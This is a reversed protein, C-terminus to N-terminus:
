PALGLLTLDSSGNDNTGALLQFAIWRPTAPNSAAPAKATDNNVNTGDGPNANALTGIADPPVSATVKTISRVSGDCFAFNVVGPHMSSFMFYQSPTQCDWYSPMTGTGMWTLQYTPLANDPGGLSEGFLLTNSTGDPIDLLGVRSDQYFPGNSYKANGPNSPDGNFYYMGSNGVYSTRGLPSNPLGDSILFYQYGSNNTITTTTATIAYTPTSPYAANYYSWFVPNNWATANSFAGYYSLQGTAFDKWDGTLISGANGAPDVGAFPGNMGSSPNSGAINTAAAIGFSSGSLAGNAPNVAIQAAPAYWSFFGNNVSLAVSVKQANWNITTGGPTSWNLSTWTTWSYNFPLYYTFQDATTFTSQLGGASVIINVPGAAAAPSVATISGNPNITFSTAPNNGFSVATATAFNSGTITVTTGGNIPGSNPSITGVSAGAYTFNPYSGTSSGVTVTVPGTGATGPATLATIQTDSVVIALSASNVGVFAVSSLANTNLGTFNQGTITVWTGGGIDVTSPSVSSITPGAYTFLDAASTSSTGGGIGGVAPTTLTIDVATGAVLALPSTATVQNESVVTFSAAPVTGFMVSNVGLFHTGSITVSTGGVAPGNNPSVVAVNPTTYYYVFANALTATGSSCTVSISIPTGVTAGAQAATPASLTIQSSSVFTVGTAAFNAPGWNVALNTATFGAGNITITYNYAGAGGSAIPATGAIQQASVVSTIGYYTFANTATGTGGGAAPSGAAPTTMSVNVTGVANAPAIATVSNESVSTPTVSVTGFIVANVGLLHNGTITVTTGAQGVSPSVALNIPPAYYYYFNTTTATTGSCTVSIPIPVGVMSSMATGNPFAAAATVNTCTIQNASVWTVNTAFAVPNATGWSVTLGSNTFGSGNITIGANFTGVGITNTASTAPQSSVVSTIVPLYTFTAPASTGSPGIVTINAVGASTTSPIAVNTISTDTTPATFTTAVGNVQVGTAGTFNVGTLAVTTGTVPGSSPSVTTIIPGASTITTLTVTANTALATSGARDSGTAATAPLSAPTSPATGSYVATDSIPTLGTLTTGPTLVISGYWSPSGTGMNNYGAGTTGNPVGINIPTNLPPFSTLSGSIPTYTFKAGSGTGITGATLGPLSTSGAPPNVVNFTANAPVAVGFTTGPAIVYSGPYVIAAGTISGANVSTVILQATGQPFNFTNPATPTSGPNAGPYGSMGGPPVTGGAVNLLNGVAYGSGGNAVTIGGIMTNLVVGQVTAGNTMRVAAGWGNGAITGTTNAANGRVSAGYGNNAIAVATAAANGRIEGGYGGTTPNSYYNASSSLQYFFTGTYKNPSNTYPNPTSTAVMTAVGTGGISCGGGSSNTVSTGVAAATGGTYTLSFTAGSGAPYLPTTTGPIPYVTQNLTPVTFTGATTGTTGGPVTTYSGPNVIIAATGNCKNAGNENEIAIVQLITPSGGATVVGGQVVLIDGLNYGPAFVNATNAAVVSGFYSGASPTPTGTFTGTYAAASTGPGVVSYTQSSGSYNTGTNNVTLQAFSIGTTAPVSYYNVANGLIYYNTGAAYPNPTSGQVMTAAGPGAVSAGGGDNNAVTTGAAAASGVTIGNFTTTSYTMNFTAASGAPYLSGGVLFVTQDLTSVTPTGTTGTGNAGAAGPVVIYQGPNLITANGNIKNVGNVALVIGVQLITPSGGPALVGGQVVLIDGSQYGSTYYNGATPTPTGSLAPGTSSFTGVSTGQGVVSYTTSAAAYGQGGDHVTLQGLGISGTVPVSYYNPANGLVYYNTGPNYPNPTTGQVMAAAGGGAVSAGGGIVIPNTGNLTVATGSTWTLSVTCGSGAPYLPATTGPVPYVNQNLTSVTVTGTTGSGIAGNAGPILTYNGQNLIQVSVVKGNSNYTGNGETVQVVSLVQLITPSAGPALAGGQVVLIDGPAYGLGVYSGGPITASVGNLAGTGTTPTNTFTGASFGPGVISFTQSSTSTYGQGGVDFTLNNIDGLPSMQPSGIYNMLSNATSFNTGGINTAANVGAGMQLYSSQGITMAYNGGYNYLASQPVFVGPFSTISNLQGIDVGAYYTPSAGSSPSIAPALTLTDGAFYGSGGSKIAVNTVQVYNILSSSSTAISANSNASISNSNPGLIAIVAILALLGLWPSDSRALRALRNFSRDALRTGRSLHNSRM